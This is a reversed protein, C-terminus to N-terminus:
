VTGRAETKLGGCNATHVDQALEPHYTIFYKKDKILHTNCGSDMVEPKIEGTLNTTVFSLLKSWKAAPVVCQEFTENLETIPVTYMNDETDYSIQATSIHDKNEVEKGGTMAINAVPKQNGTARKVGDKPQRCVHCTYKGDVLICGLNCCGAPCHIASPPSHISHMLSQSLLMNADSETKWLLEEWQLPGFYFSSAAQYMTKQVEAWDPGVPLLQVFQKAVDAFIVPCNLNNASHIHAIESCWKRTFGLVATPSNSCTTTFLCDRALAVNSWTNSCHASKLMVYVARSPVQNQFLDDIQPLLARSDPSLKALIIGRVVGDNRWFEDWARHENMEALFGSPPPYVSVIFSHQNPPIDIIHGLLNWSQLVSKVANDWPGWTMSDSLTLNLIDKSLPTPVTYAPQQQHISFFRQNHM